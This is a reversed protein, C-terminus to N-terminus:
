PPTTEIRSPQLEAPVVVGTNATVEGARLDAPKLFLEPNGHCNNCSANQPTRRQITHPASLKWTPESDFARLASAAYADFTGTAIPVHRLVVFTHPRAATRKPNRGIKFGLQTRKCKFYPLGKADTGVHCDFCHKIAQAHCVQCAVTDTHERHIEHNTGQAADPHCNECRPRTAIDFRTAHGEAAAHIQKATHCDNCAMEAAGFHVDARLKANLGTFEAFVRGGHCSACTTEMPPTKQFHHGALFGGGVYAPRSVHCQGCSAHCQSCHNEYAQTLAAQVASNAPGRRKEISRRIPAITYHRSDKAGSTIEGHCEGCAGQPDPYTPDKILGLQATQWDRSVPDGGHCVDCGIQGHPDAMFEQSIFIKEYPELPAM